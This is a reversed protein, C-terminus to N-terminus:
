CIITSLPLTSAFPMLVVTITPLYLDMLRFQFGYQKMQNYVADPLNYLTWMGEDAKAVLSCLCLISLLLKKM